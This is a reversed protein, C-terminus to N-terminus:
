VFTVTNFIPVTSIGVWIPDLYANKVVSSDWAPSGSGETYKAVVWGFYPARNYMETQARTCISQITPIASGNFFSSACANSLATSYIATNSFASTNSSFTVWYEVPSLFAPQATPGEPDEINGLVNSNNVLYSYPQAIGSVWQNFSVANIVVNIGIQALTAQAVTARTLCVDCTAILRWTLTPLGKGNPFGAQALYQAALTLNFSYPQFNGLDYFQSWVPYEPGVMQTAAGQGYAKAILDTMNIAHVIALRVDTINTPYIKTNLSEVSILGANPPIAPYGYKDPSALILRFNSKGPPSIIQAAGTSLDIYRTTPDPVVKALVDKVHGPDITPNSTVTSEPLNKGWYTPNQTFAVFQNDSVQTVMYPGTGPIANLNFYTNYATPTGFAGHQLLYQADYICGIEAVLTGLFWPFSHTMHFVITNQDTAYIPWSSNTMMAVAQPSPNILGSQQLLSISSPGFNVTNMNFLQYGNYWSSANASLYYFGYYVTWVQYANFPDGNSFTVNQRLHFTYTTGDPSVTWNNALDPLFQVVGPANGGPFDATLNVAVLTQWSTYAPLDPYIGVTWANLQNLGVPSWSTLDITLTKNYYAPGTQSSSTTSSVSSSSSSSTLLSSSSSSSSSSFSSSSSSSSSSGLSTSSSTSLTSTTPSTTITTSSSLFYYAVGGIAAIVIVVIVVLVAIMRGIAQIRRTM